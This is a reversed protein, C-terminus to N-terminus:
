RAQEETMTMRAHLLKRGRYLRGEVTKESVGLLAAVRRVDTEELYHMCLVAREKEPLRLLEGRLRSHRDDEHSEAAPLDLESVDEHGRRARRWNRELNRVIGRLWAGAQELDGLDGEYRRRVLWAEAFADQALECADAWPVGWGVINSPKCERRCAPDHEVQSSHVLDYFDVWVVHKHDYLRAHRPRLDFLSEVTVM